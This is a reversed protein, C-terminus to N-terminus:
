RAEPRPPEPATIAERVPFEILAAGAGPAPEYCRVEGRADEGLFGRLVELHRLGAAGRFAEPADRELEDLRQWEGSHILDLVREDFGRSEPIERRLTWAHENFSILGGVVFAAREPWAGIAERLVRGWARCDPAPQRALSLPVIPLGRPALFHMPVTVGSDVGREAPGVRVKARRGAEVLAQARAPLGSADYRVEVGFGPYDTITGHRRGVDVLFPGPTEWRASLVVAAAPIDGQFREAAQELAVLMETRHHRHEDVLLTPLHPVLFVHSTLM